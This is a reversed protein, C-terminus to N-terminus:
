FILIRMTVQIFSDIVTITIHSEYKNYHLKTLYENISRKKEIIM